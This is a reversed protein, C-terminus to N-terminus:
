GGFSYNHLEIEERFLRGVRVRLKDDYFETYKKKRSSKKAYVNLGDNSDIGVRELVRLLEDNLNEYRIVEDVMIEGTDPNTYNYLNYPCIGTGRIKQSMRRECFSLYQDLPIKENFHKKYYFWGSIVKEWPNRVVTFKLYDEWVEKPVRNKIKRAPIHHHFKKPILADKVIDRLNKFSFMGVRIDEQIEPIPNFFGRFNRPTHHSEPFAFPTLIDNEGCYKDLFVEISTGATKATKVFIFKHKHSLVM